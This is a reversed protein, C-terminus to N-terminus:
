FGLGFWVVQWGWCPAKFLARHFGEYIRIGRCNVRSKLWVPRM